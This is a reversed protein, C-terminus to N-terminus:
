GDVLHAFHNEVTHNFDSAALRAGLRFDQRLVIENGPLPPDRKLLELPRVTARGECLAAFQKPLANSPTRSKDHLDIRVLVEPFVM